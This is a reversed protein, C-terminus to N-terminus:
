RATVREYTAALADGVAALAFRRAREERAAEPWSGAPADLVQALGAALAAASPDDVLVGYPGVVEVVPPLRPMVVPVGALVAEAAAICFTEVTSGLAFCRSRALHTGVEQRPVRGLVDVAGALDARGVRAEVEARLPGDGLLVLRLAPRDRRVQAVADLLTMTGKDAELRGVSVVQELREAAPEDAVLHEVPNPVVTVDIGDALGASVICERLHESVALVAAAAGYVRAATRRNTATFPKHAASQGTIRTSHETVV